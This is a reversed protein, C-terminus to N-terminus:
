IAEWNTDDYSAYTINSGAALSVATDVGAGLDDSAAPFVDAAEVGNNIITIRLSVGAIATPLTISDGATACTSIENIDTTIPSGGQVSGVDATIGSTVSHLRHSGLTTIFLWIAAGTSTDVCVYFVDATVDIWKSGVGYGETNDNDVTPAVTADLKDLLGSGSITTEKWVASAVTSDLCVFEKDLTVNIWRSSVSYGDGSDEDASPNTTAILNNLIGTIADVEKWVAAGLTADVCIFADDTTLNVWHSRVKYGKSSDDNVTPNVVDENGKDHLDEANLMWWDPM